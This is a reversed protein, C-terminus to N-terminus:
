VSFQIRRKSFLCKLHEALEEEIISHCVGGADGYLLLDVQGRVATDIDSCSVCARHDGGACLGRQCLRLRIANRDLVINDHDLAIVICTNQVATHVKVIVVNGCSLVRVVGYIVPFIGKFLVHERIKIEFGCGGDLIAPEPRPPM